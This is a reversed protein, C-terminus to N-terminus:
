KSTYSLLDEVLLHVTTCPNMESPTKDPPHNNLIKKSFRIANEVSGYTSLIEFINKINKDYKGNNISLMKFQEDLKSNIQNRDLGTDIYNFHLLFWLEFSENSWAVKYGNSKAIEISSNFQHATFSDKDYVCWVHGYPITANKVKNIAHEVLSRTNKGTGDLEIKVQEVNIKDGYTNNIISEIGKFYNPETEEGECVILYRYPALKRNNYKREKKKGKRKKFLDDSGM